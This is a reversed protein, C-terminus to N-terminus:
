RARRPRRWGRASRRCASRGARSRCPGSRCRRARRASRAEALLHAPADQDAGVHERGAVVVGVIELRLLHAREDLVVEVLRPFRDVHHQRRRRRRGREAEALLGAVRMAMYRSSMKVTVTFMAPSGPMETGAPSELSPVGSPSCSMPLGNSSAVSNRAAFAISSAAPRKVTGSRQHCVPLWIPKPSLMQPWPQLPAQRWSLSPLSFIVPLTGCSQRSMDSTRASISRM